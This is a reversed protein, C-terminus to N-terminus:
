AIFGPVFVFFLNKKLFILYIFWDVRYDFLSRMAHVYFLIFCGYWMIVIWHGDNMTPVDGNLLWYHLLWLFNLILFVFVCVSASVCGYICLVIVCVCVCVFCLFIQLYVFGIFQECHAGALSNLRWFTWLYFCFFCFNLFFLFVTAILGWWICVALNSLSLSNFYVIRWLGVFVM